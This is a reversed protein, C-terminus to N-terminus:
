EGGVLAELSQAHREPLSIFSLTDGLALVTSGNPIIVEGDRLVAAVLTSSPFRIDKLAMGISPAGEPLVVETVGVKGDALPQLSRISQSASRQEILSSVTATVSFTGELGLEQFVEENEPDHVLAFVANVGYRLKAIRCIVYNDEDRPTLALLRDVSRVGSDELVRPLTGDGHVVLADTMKSLRLCEDADRNIVIVEYGRARLSRVIYRSEEGGEVIMIRM